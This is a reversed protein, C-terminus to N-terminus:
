CFDIINNSTIIRQLLMKFSRMLDIVQYTKCSSCRLINMEQPM